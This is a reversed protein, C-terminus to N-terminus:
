YNLDFYYIQLIKGGGLGATVASLAVGTARHTLSLATTLQLKYISLHPSMPRQLRSNKDDHTEGVKYEVEQATKIQTTIM